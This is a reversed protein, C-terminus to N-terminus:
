VIRRLTGRQTTVLDGAALREVVVEGVSTAIQTGALFCLPNLEFVKGDGGADEGFLDGNANTILGGIPNRNNYDLSALTTPSSAYGSATNAIEFVTGEGSTGDSQTTGFLDGNADAILSSMPNEGNSGDFSVLTTPSSAYGTATNAIEFVTGEGSAGGSQTTGFLDGNADTILSNIPVQGNSSNFSVLTTPSSGYGTATNAIEFVTGDGSAGGTQTTGFLDGNANAILGGSPYAGNSGDFSVLNTPSSAYGSATNAIEFVTGDNNAGGFNTTGFLDGNADTIVSSIPEQGNSGNFSVLTTISPM